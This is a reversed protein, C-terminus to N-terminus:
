QYSINCNMAQHCHHFTAFLATQNNHDLNDYKCPKCYSIMTSFLQNDVLLRCLILPYWETFKMCGSRLTLSLLLMLIQSYCMCCDLLECDSHRLLLLLNIRSDSHRFWCRGKQNGPYCKECLEVACHAISLFCYIFGKFDNTLM